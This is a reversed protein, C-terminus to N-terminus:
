GPVTKEFHDKELMQFVADNSEMKDFQPKYYKEKLEKLMKSYRDEFIKKGFKYLKQDVETIKLLKEKACETLEIKVDSAVNKQIVNRIPKWGFIYHLLFLSEEMKEVIGVFAFGSLRKKAIKLFKSYSYKPLLGEDEEPRYKKLEDMTMKKTRALIDQEIVLWHTQPNKLGELYPGEILESINKNTPINLRKIDDQQRMLMKYASIMM